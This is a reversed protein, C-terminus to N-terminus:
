PVWLLINRFLSTKRKRNFTNGPETSQLLCMKKEKKIKAQAMLPSISSILLWSSQTLYFDLSSPASPVTCSAPTHSGPSTRTSPKQPQDGADDCLKRFKAPQSTCVGVFLISHHGSSELTYGGVEKDRDQRESEPVRQWSAYVIFSEAMAAPHTPLSWTSSERRQCPLSLNQNDCEPPSTQTDIDCYFFAGALM